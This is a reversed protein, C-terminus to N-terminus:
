RSRFYIKDYFNCKKLIIPKAFTKGASILRFNTFFQIKPLYQFIKLKPASKLLHGSLETSLMSPIKGKIKGLLYYWFFFGLPTPDELEASVMIKKEM